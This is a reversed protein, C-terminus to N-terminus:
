IHILSLSYVGYRSSGWMGTGTAPGVVFILKNEESLPDIGPKVNELLLYSGLGKGGLYTKFIENPIEEVIYSRTTLNIRLLKGFFGKM